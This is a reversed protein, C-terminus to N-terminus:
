REQTQFQENFLKMKNLTQAVYDRSKLSIIYLSNPASEIYFFMDKAHPIVVLFFLINSPLPLNTYKFFNLVM